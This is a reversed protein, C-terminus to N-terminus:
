GDVVYQDLLRGLHAKMEPLYDHAPLPYIMRVVNGRHWL